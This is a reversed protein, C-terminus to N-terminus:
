NDELKNIEKFEEVLCDDGLIVMLFKDFSFEFQEDGTDCFLTTGTTDITCIITYGECDEYSFIDSARWELNLDYQFIDSCFAVLSIILSTTIKIQNTM